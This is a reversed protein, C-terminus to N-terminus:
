SVQELIFFFALYLVIVLWCKCMETNLGSVYKLYEKIGQIKFKNGM